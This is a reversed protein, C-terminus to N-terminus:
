LRLMISGLLGSADAAMQFYRILRWKMVRLFTKLRKLREGDLAYQEVVAGNELRIVYSCASVVLEHDHTIVIVSKGKETMSQLVSAVEEMHQLDLGSTPEDFVLIECEAAIAVRQKQGSSLSMPHRDSYDALNLDAM